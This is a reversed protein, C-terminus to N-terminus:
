KDDVGLAPQGVALQAEIGRGGVGATIHGQHHQDVATRGRGRLDNGTGQLVTAPRHDHTGVAEALARYLRYQWQVVVARQLEGGCRIVRGVAAGDLGLAYLRIDGHLAGLQGPIRILDAVALGTPQPMQVVAVAVPLLARCYAGRGGAGIGLAVRVVLEILGQVQELPEVDVTTLSSIFRRAAPATAPPRGPFGPGVCGEGRGRRCGAATA